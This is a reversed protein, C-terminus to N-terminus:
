CITSVAHVSDTGKSWKIRTKEIDRRRFGYWCETWVPASVEKGQRRRDGFRPGAGGCNRGALGPADPRTEAGATAMRSLEQRFM